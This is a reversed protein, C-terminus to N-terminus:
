HASAGLLLAPGRLSGPTGDRLLESMRTAAYREGAAAVIGLQVLVRLLRGLADADCNCRRALEDAALPGAALQEGLDLRAAAHVAQAVLHGSLHRALTAREVLGPM